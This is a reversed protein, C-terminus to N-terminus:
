QDAELLDEAVRPKTVQEAGGIGASTRRPQTDEVAM